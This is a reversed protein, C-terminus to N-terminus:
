TKFRNLDSAMVQHLRIEVEDAKRIFESFVTDYYQDVDTGPGSTEIKEIREETIERFERLKEQAELIKQRMEMDDLPVFTGEHNTGGELMAKVYWDARDLHGWVTEMTEHRDGHLIEEFWLHATTTELKIVMSADILPAYMTTMRVGKYFSYSVMGILSLGILGILVYNTSAIRKQRATM